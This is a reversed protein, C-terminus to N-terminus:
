QAVETTNSSNGGNTVNVQITRNVYPVFTVNATINLSQNFSTVNVETENTEISIIKICQEGFTEPDAIWGNVTKVEMGIRHAKNLATRCELTENVFTLNLYQMLMTNEAELKDIKDALYNVNNAVPQFEKHSVFMSDLLGWFDYWYDSGFKKASKVYDTAAGDMKEVITSIGLGGSRHETIYDAGYDNYNFTQGPPVNVNGSQVNTNCTGGNCVITNDINGTSTEVILSNIDQDSVIAIQVNTDPEPVTEVPETEVSDEGDDACVFSTALILCVLAMFAIIKKEM